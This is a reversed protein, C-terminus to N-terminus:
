APPMLAFVPLFISAIERMKKGSLEDARLGEDESARRFLILVFGEVL